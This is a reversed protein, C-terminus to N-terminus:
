SSSESKNVSNAKKNEKMWVYGKNNLAKMYNLKIKEFSLEPIKTKSFIHKEMIIKDFFRISDLEETNVYSSNPSSNKSKNNGENIYENINKLKNRLM